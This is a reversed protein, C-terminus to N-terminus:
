KQMLIKFKIVKDCKHTTVNLHVSEFYKKEFECNLNDAVHCADRAARRVFFDFVYVTFRYTLFYKYKMYLFFLTQVKRAHILVTTNFNFERFANLSHYSTPELFERIFRIRNHNGVLKLMQSRRHYGNSDLVIGSPTGTHRQIFLQLNMRERTYRRVYIHSDNYWLNFRSEYFFSKAMKFVITQTSSCM